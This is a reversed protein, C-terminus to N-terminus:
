LLTEMQRLLALARLNKELDTPASTVTPMIDASGLHYGPERFAQLVSMGTRPAQNWDFCKSHWLSTIEASSGRPGPVSYGWREAITKLISTHDFLEHAATGAPTYPSMVLTPVRCGLTDHPAPRGEPSPPPPVHDFFGGHEDYTIILLSKSWSKENSLLAKTVRALFQQGRMPQHPPHDDSIAYDPEVISLRPLRGAHCDDAFDDLSGGRGGRYVPGVRWLAFVSDQEPRASYAKWEKKMGQWKEVFPPDPYRYANWRPIWKPGTGVLEDADGAMIYVRNPWTSGPFSSFWRDCVAFQDALYYLVPLTNRTFYGMVHQARAAPDRRRRSHHREYARVFGTMAGGAIQEVVDGHEHPPDRYPEGIFHIGHAPDDLAIMSVDPGETSPNKWRSAATIGDLDARGELTLAGLFHDYSRNEMVVLIIHEIDQMSAM